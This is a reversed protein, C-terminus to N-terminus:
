GRRAATTAAAALPRWWAAVKAGAGVVIRPRTPPSAAEVVAHSRTRPLLPRAHGRCMSAPAALAAEVVARQSSAHAADAAAVVACPRTPPSTVAVVTHSCTPPPLPHGRGYRVDAEVVRGHVPPITPGSQPSTRPLHAPAPPVSDNCVARRRSCLQRASQWVCVCACACQAPRQRLRSPRARARNHSKSAQAEARTLRM